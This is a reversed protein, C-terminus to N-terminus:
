STEAQVEYVETITCSEVWLIGPAEEYLSLINTDFQVKRALLLPDDPIERRLYAPLEGLPFPMAPGNKACYFERLEDFEGRTTFRNGIDWQMGAM